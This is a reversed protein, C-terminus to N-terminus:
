REEREGGLGVRGDGPKKLFILMTQVLFFRRFGLLLGEGEEWRGGDPAAAYGLVLFGLFAFSRNCVLCDVTTEGTV